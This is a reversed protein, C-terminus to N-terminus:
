VRLPRETLKTCVSEVAPDGPLLVNAGLL